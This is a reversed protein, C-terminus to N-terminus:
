TYYLKYHFILLVFKYTTFLSSNNNEKKLFIMISKFSIILGYISLFGYCLLSIVNHPFIYFFAMLIGKFGYNSIISILTFGLSFCKFFYIVIIIPIGIITFGFIFIIMLMLINIVINSRLCMDYNINDINSIFDNISKSVIDKDGMSLLYYFLSGAIIGIITIVLICLIIRRNIRFIGKLKDM